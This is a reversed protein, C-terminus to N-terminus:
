KRLPINQEGATYALYETGIVAAVGKPPKPMSSSEVPRRSDQARGSSTVRLSLLTGGAAVVNKLKFTLRSGGILRKRAGEVVEGIVVAHLPVVLSQGVRLEQAATFHIVRGPEADAPVDEALEIKFPLADPVTVTVPTPGPSGPTASAAPAATNPSPAAPAEMKSRGAASISRKPDRMTEIIEPSAGAETLRIVEPVSLDFRGPTVRIQQVIVAPAVKARLMAIVGDNTMAGDVSVPKPVAATPIAAPPPPAARHGVLWWGGVAAVVLGVGAGIVPLPSRRRPAPPAAVSAMTQQTISDGKLVGIADRLEHMSQWRDDPRKAICRRVLDDVARPVAPLSVSIPRVDDRLISSLVSLTSDGTFPRAGTLMEYLMVGFSFIDSRSDVVKGEAQEPSMYSVTGLISGEVTLPAVGYTATTTSLAGAAGSLASLKAIGFDLIKLLGRDTIM